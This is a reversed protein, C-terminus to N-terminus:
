RETRFRLRALVAIAVLAILLGTLAGTAVALMPRPSVPSEVSYPPVVVQARSEEATGLRIEDLRRQVDVERVATEPREAAAVPLERLRRQIDQLQIEFYRRLESQEPPRVADFYRASIAEVLRVGTSRDGSHVEVELLLSGEILNVNVQEALQEVSMGNAVAVPELVARSKLLLAQTTLTRDERLFGTPQESSIRYLLETRAAYQPPLFATVILAVGAGVLTIVLGLAGLKVAERVSLRTRSGDTTTDVGQRPPGHGNVADERWAPTRAPDFDSPSKVAPGGIPRRVSPQDGGPADGTLASPVHDTRRGGRCGAASRRVRCLGSQRHCPVPYHVGWGIHAETLARGVVARDPVRVVALHHVPEADRHIEVLECWDPVQQAYRRMAARRADNEVDLLRLKIALAAAQITDLRSNRGREDHRYREDDSRGHNALRRVRGILEFDNSVVAGGDGLAGLNKGPYFSFAAAVGVGGARKGGFRAGHAQAADEIFALGHRVAVSSLAEVNVMQGFLHVGIIAATRRNVAAAVSDPDILLTDPLVDVFRPRAGAAVVAEATAVFTNAPVIVEDGAGIGLAALILELADTGNGVGVCDSVGCYAAFESEFVAVEPGGVFQSHALVSKWALDLDERVRGNVATLDLFPIATM